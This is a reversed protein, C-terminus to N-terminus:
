HVSCVGKRPKLWFCLFPTQRSRKVYEDRPPAYWAAHNLQSLLWQSYGCQLPRVAYPMVGGAACLEPYYRGAAPRTLRWGCRPAGSTMMGPLGVETLLPSVRVYRVPPPDGGSGRVRSWSSLPRESQEEYPCDGPCPSTLLRSYM